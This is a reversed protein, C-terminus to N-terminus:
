WTGRSRRMTAGATSCWRRRGAGDGGRWARQRRRRGRRPARGRVTGPRAGTRDVARGEPDYQVEESQLIFQRAMAHDIQEVSRVEVKGRLTVRVPSRTASPMPGLAWAMWPRRHGRPRAARPRTTGAPRTAAGPKHETQRGPRGADRQVREGTATEVSDTPSTSRVAVDGVIDVVNGAANLTADKKWQINVPRAEDGEGQIADISGAGLIRAVGDKASVSIAPGIVTARPSTVKVNTASTLDVQAHGDIMVVDLRDGSAVTQDEGVVRVNGTAQLDKLEVADPKDTSTSVRAALHDAYLHQTADYAHVNGAAEFRDPAPQGKSDPNTFLTLTQSEIARRVDGDVTIAKVNGTATIQQLAPQDAKIGPAFSLNLKQTTLALRPHDVAVDGACDIQSLTTARKDGTLKVTAQTTWTAQLPEDNSQPAAPVNIKGPGSLLAVKTLGDYDLANTTITRGDADTITIVSQGAAPRLTAGSHGTHYRASGAHVTAGAQQLAVAKGSLEAVAEGAKLPSLPPETLPVMRLPGTWRVIVPESAAPQTAPATTATATAPPPVPATTATPPPAPAAGTSANDARVTSETLFDITLTDGTGLPQDGQTITVDDLLKARYLTQRKTKAPAAAPLATAAPDASALEIPRNMAVQLTRDVTPRAQSPLAANPQPKMADMAKKIVVREGHAIELLQVIGHKDDWRLTLGYGDFDVEDGRVEVKVRDAPVTTGNADTYADTYIRFTDLDFAVNNVRASLVRQGLPTDISVTVNQMTGRTPMGPM